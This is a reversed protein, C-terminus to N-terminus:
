FGTYNNSNTVAGAAAGEAAEAGLAGKGPGLAAWMPAGTQAGGATAAGKRTPGSGTRIITPSHRAGPWRNPEQSGPSAGYRNPRKPLQRTRQRHAFVTPHQQLLNNTIKQNPNSQMRFWSKCAICIMNQWVASLIYILCFFPPKRLIKYSDAIRISM